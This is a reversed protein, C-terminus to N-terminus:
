RQAVVKNRLVGIQDIEAEIVDGIAVSAEPPYETTGIAGTSILDGPKLTIDQSLFEIIRAISCRMDGTNGRSVVAGNVRLEADLHQPEASSDPLAIYPGVVEFTDMVMSRSFYFGKPFCRTGPGIGRLLSMATLDNVVTYGFVHSLAQDRPIRKGEKGIIVGLEVASTVEAATNPWWIGDGQGIVTEPNMIFMATKGDDPPVTGHVTSYADYNYEMNFVCGHLQPVPALVSVEDLGYRIRGGCPSYSPVVREEATARVYEDVLSLDAHGEAGRYILALMSGPMREQAIRAATSSDCGDRDVLLKEFAARLDFLYQGRCVATRIEGSHNRFSAIRM